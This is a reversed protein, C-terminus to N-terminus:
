LLVVGRDRFSPVVEKNGAAMALHLSDLRVDRDSARFGQVDDSLAGVAGGRHRLNLTYMM